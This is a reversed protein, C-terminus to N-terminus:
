KIQIVYFLNGAFKIRKSEFAPLYHSLIGSPKKIDVEVGTSTMVIDQKVWRWIDGKMVFDFAEQRQVGNATAVLEVMTNIIDGIITNQEDHRIRTGSTYKKALENMIGFQSFEAANELIINQISTKKAIMRAIFTQIKDLGITPEQYQKLVNMIDNQFTDTIKRSTFDVLLENIIVMDGVANSKALDIFAQSSLSRAVSSDKRVRKKTAKQIATLEDVVESKSVKIIHFGLSHIVSDAFQFNSYFQHKNADAKTFLDGLSSKIYTNTNIDFVLGFKNINMTMSEVFDAHAAEDYKNEASLNLMKATYYALKTDKKREETWKEITEGTAHKGSIHYCNITKAKRFRGCLQKIYEAPEKGIIFVNATDITDQISVGEVLSNTGLIVDVKDMKFSSDNALKFAESNSDRITEASVIFSEKDFQSLLDKFVALEQCDNMLVLSKANTSDIIALVDQFGAQAKKYIRHYNFTPKGIKNVRVKMDFDLLMDFSDSSITASQFIIQKWDYDLLRAVNSLATLRYDALLLNHAEDIVLIEESPNIEKTEIMQAIKKAQDYTTTKDSYVCNSSGQQGVISRLPALIRCKVKTNTWLHNKGTGMDACMLVRKADTYDALELYDVSKEINWEVKGVNYPKTLGLEIQSEYPIYKRLIGAHGKYSKIQRLDLVSKSDSRMVLRDTRLVQEDSAGISFLATALIFRSPTNDIQAPYNLQQFAPLSIIIDILKDVNDMSLPDIVEQEYHVVQKIFVEPNLRKVETYLPEVELIRTADGDNFDLEICGHDPNIVPFYAIQGFTFCSSDLDQAPIINKFTALLTPEVWLKWESKSYANMLPIIVRYKGYSSTHSHTTYSYNVIKSLREKILAIDPDKDFDLCIMQRQKAFIEMKTNDKIPDFDPNAKYFSKLSEDDMNLLIQARYQKDWFTSPILSLVKDKNPSSIKASDLLRQKLQGLTELKNAPSTDFCHKATSFQVTFNDHISKNATAEQGVTITFM